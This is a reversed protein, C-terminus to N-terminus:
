AEAEVSYRLYAAFREAEARDEPKLSGTLRALVEVTEHPVEPREGLFYGVPYGYTRALRRLELDDPDRRGQEIDEIATEGIGSETAVFAPAFGLYARVERLRSAIEQSM